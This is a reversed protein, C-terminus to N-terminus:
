GTYFEKDKNFEHNPKFDVQVIKDGFDLSELYIVTIRRQIIRQETLDFNALAEQYIQTIKQASGLEKIKHQALQRYEQIMKQLEPSELPLDLKRKTDIIQRQENENLPDSNMKSVLFAAKLVNVIKEDTLNEGLKEASIVKSFSQINGNKSQAIIFIEVSKMLSPITSKPLYELFRDYYACQFFMPTSPISM